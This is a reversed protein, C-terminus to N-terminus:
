ARLRYTHTSRPWVEALAPGWEKRVAPRDDHHVADIWGAGRLEEWSQGTVRQWGPSPETVGGDPATVWVMQTGANVLSRYRLLALRREESLGRIREAPTVQAAVEASVGLGGRDGASCRSCSISVAFEV